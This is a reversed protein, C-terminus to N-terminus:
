YTRLIEDIKLQISILPLYSYHCEIRRKWVQLFAISWIEIELVVAFHMIMLMATCFIWKRCCCRRMTLYFGKRSGPHQQRSVFIAQFHKNTFILQSLSQYLNDNEVITTEGWGAHATNQFFTVQRSFVQFMLCSERHKTTHLIMPHRCMMVNATDKLM